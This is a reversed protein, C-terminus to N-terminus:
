RRCVDPFRLHLSIFTNDFCGAFLKLMESAKNVSTVVNKKKKATNWSCTLELMLAVLLDLTHCVVTQLSLITM